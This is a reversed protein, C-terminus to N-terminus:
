SNGGIIADAAAVASGVAIGEGNKETWRIAGALIGGAAYLNSYVPEGSADLVRMDSGVRVGVRFMPQPDGWYEAHTPEPIDTGVLPLGFVTESMVGYSDLELSGSEFGGACHVVSDAEIVMDHGTSAVTISTIRGDTAAASVAPSGLIIKVRKEKALDTLAQNIRM